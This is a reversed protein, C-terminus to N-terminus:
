LGVRAHLLLKDHNWSVNPEALDPSEGGKEFSLHNPRVGGPSVLEHYAGGLGMYLDKRGRKWKLKSVTMRRRLEKRIRQKTVVAKEQLVRGLVSGPEDECRRIWLFQGVIEGM